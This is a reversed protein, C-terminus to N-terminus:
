RTAAIDSKCEQNARTISKYIQRIESTEGVVYHDMNLDSTRYWLLIIVGDTIDVIFDIIENIKDKM